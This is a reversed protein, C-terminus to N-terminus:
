VVRLQGKRPPCLQTFSWHALPPESSPVPGPQSSRASAQGARRHECSRANGRATFVPLWSASSRSQLLSAASSASVSAGCSPRSNAWVARASLMVRPLGCGPGLAEVGSTQARGRTEQAAPAEGTPWAASVPLLAGAGGARGGPTEPLAAPQVLLALEAAGGSGGM